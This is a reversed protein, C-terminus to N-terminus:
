PNESRFADLMRARALLGQEGPAIALAVPVLGAPIDQFYVRGDAGLRITVTLSEGDLDPAIAESSGRGSLPPPPHAILGDGQLVSAEAECPLGCPGDAEVEAEADSRAAVRGLPEGLSGAEDKGRSIPARHNGSAGADPRLGGQEEAGMLHAPSGSQAANAGERTLNLGADNV